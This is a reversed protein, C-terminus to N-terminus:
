SAELIDKAGHTKIQASKLDCTIVYQDIYPILFQKVFGEEQLEQSTQVVFYSVGAMEEISSVKGLLLEDEFVDLGIVDFWFYEDEKLTINTKSQEISSYIFQNVLPTSKQPDDYGDFNVIKKQANYKAITLAAGDELYYSAGKQFQDPFDSKNHLRLDGKLGVCKGIQAVVVLEEPKPQM